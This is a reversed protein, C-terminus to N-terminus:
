LRGASRESRDRVAAAAPPVAEVSGSLEASEELVAAHSCIHFV